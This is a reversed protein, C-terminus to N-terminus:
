SRGLLRKLLGPRPPEVEDRLPLRGARRAKLVCATHAHRRRQRDDEPVVLQHATLAPLLEGCLPCRYTSPKRNAAPRVAYWRADGFDSM